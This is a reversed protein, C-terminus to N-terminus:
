ATTHIVNEQPDLYGLQESGAETFKIPLYNTCNGATMPQLEYHEPEIM